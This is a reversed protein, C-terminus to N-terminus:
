ALPFFGQDTAGPCIPITSTGDGTVTNGYRFNYIGVKILCAAGVEWEQTAPRVTCTLTVETPYIGRLTCDSPIANLPHVRDAATAASAAPVATLLSVAAAALCIVPRWSFPM